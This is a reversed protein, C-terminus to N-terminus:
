GAFENSDPTCSLFLSFQDPSIPMKDLVFFLVLVFLCFYSVFFTSCKFDFISLPSTCIRLKFGKGGGGGLLYGAASRFNLQLVPRLNMLQAHSQM